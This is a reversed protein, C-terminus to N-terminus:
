KLLLVIIKRRNDFVLFFVLKTNGCIEHIIDTFHTLFTIQLLLRKSCLAVSSVKTHKTYYVDFSVLFSHSHGVSYILM